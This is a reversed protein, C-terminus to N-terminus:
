IYEAILDEHLKKLAAPDECPLLTMGSYGGHKLAPPLQKSQKVMAVESWFQIGSDRNNYGFRNLDSDDFATANCYPTACCRKAFRVWNRLCRDERRQGADRDRLGLSVVSSRQRALCLLKGADKRPSEAISPM